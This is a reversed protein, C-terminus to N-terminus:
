SPGNIIEGIKTEREVLNRNKIYGGMELTNFYSQVMDKSSPDALRHLMDRYMDVILNRKPSPLDIISDLVLYYDKPNTM